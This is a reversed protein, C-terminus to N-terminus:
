QGSICIVFSNISGPSLIKDLPSCHQKKTYSRWQQQTLWVMERVILIYVVLQLVRRGNRFFLSRILNASRVMEPFPPMDLRPPTGPSGQPNTPFIPSGKPVIPFILPIVGGRLFGM